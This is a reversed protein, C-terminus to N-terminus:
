GFHMPVDLSLSQVKKLSHGRCSPPTSPVQKNGNLSVFGCFFDSHLSLDRSLFLIGLRNGHKLSCLKEFLELSLGTGKPM